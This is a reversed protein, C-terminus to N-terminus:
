KIKHIMKNNFQRIKNQYYIKKEKFVIKRMKYNNYNIKKSM